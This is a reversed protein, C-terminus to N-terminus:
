ESVWKGSRDTYFFGRTKLPNEAEVIPLFSPLQVIRLIDIAQFLGIQRSFEVAPLAYNSEIDELNWTSYEHRSTTGQISNVRGSFGAHDTGIRVGASKTLQKAISDVQKESM